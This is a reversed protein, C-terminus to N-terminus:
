PPLLPEFGMRSALFIFLNFELFPEDIFEQSFMAHPLRSLNISLEHMVLSAFAPALTGALSRLPTTM